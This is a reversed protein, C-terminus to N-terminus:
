RRVSLFPRRQATACRLVLERWPSGLWIKAAEVKGLLEGQTFASTDTMLMARDIRMEVPREERERARESERGRDSNAQVKAVPREISTCTLVRYYAPDM